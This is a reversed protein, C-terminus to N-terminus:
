VSGSELPSLEQDGRTLAKKGVEKERLKDIADVIKIYDQLTDRISKIQQEITSVIMPMVGGGRTEKYAMRDTLSAIPNNDCYERLQQAKAELWTLEMEVYNNAKKSAAMTTQKPFTVEEKGRLYELIHILISNTNTLDVGKLTTYNPEEYPTNWFLTFADCASGCCVMGTEKDPQWVPDPRSLASILVDVRDEWDYGWDDTSNACFKFM